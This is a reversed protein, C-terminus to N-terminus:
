AVLGVNALNAKPFVKAADATSLGMTGRLVEAFVSRFDHQIKMGGPGEPADEEVVCPWSGLVRGGRIRDSLTMLAFGRGHDTGLSANEYIRRGFETTVMVTFRSRHEKLDADFAALGEALVKAREGQFSDTTGQFFHTDWGGLDICAVELGVRAKILRAIERMGSGFSDKPYQAGHAPTYGGHQLASVRKFLDLTDRGQHGLLTVDAGYLASLVKAAEESKGSSTRIAIEELAQMVSAVPAGKLSDPLTAGLAVATLPGQNGRARTRLYRGLWGGGPHDGTMSIGHEMQDQCEFHSGSSNDTGVGQVMGLRGESFSEHLPGLAPHLGYHDDLRLARARNGDSGPEKIAITPRARYYSDDAYPVVLNMTDAGGRLFVVVLTHREADEVFPTAALALKSLLARRTFSSM